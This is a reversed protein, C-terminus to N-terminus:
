FIFHELVFGIGLRQTRRDYEILSHGYGSQYSVYWRLGKQMPYSYKIDHSLYKALLPMKYHIKHKGFNRILELEGLGMFDQIDPNDDQDKREPLRYWASLMVNFHKHQLLTRAFIRDWSRSLLHIQGNSQHVYGVDLATINLGIIKKPKDYVYRSFLEPMYNTERFPRSWDSNYIQWYAHHTYAVMIDWDKGNIDRVIPISFSFQFEAENKKYFDSSHNDKDIEKVEKYIDEHPMWNYVFPLFYSTKHPILAFRSRHLNAYENKRDIISDEMQAFASFCFSVIVILLISYYNNKM